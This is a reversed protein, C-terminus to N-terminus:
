FRAGVALGHSRLDVAFRCSAPEILIGKPCHILNILAGGVSAAPDLATSLPEGEDFAIRAALAAGPVPEGDGGATLAGLADSRPRNVLIGAVLRGATEARPAPRAAVIGSAGLMRGTGFPGNATATCAAVNGSLDIAAFGAVGPSDPSDPSDPNASGGTPVAPNDDEMAAIVARGAAGPAFSLEHNGIELHEADGWAPRYDRFAAVLAPRAQEPAVESALIRALDGAYFDGPGRLRIRALTSSLAIQRLMEGERVLEGAPAFIDALADNSRIRDAAAAMRRALARSVPKGFRAFEEAPFLLAEWALRGYRAHLAFMGRVSGPVAVPPAGPIDVPEPLFELSEVTGSSADHVICVGGGGLTAVAPYTVGMAFYMAVVADFANGGSSLINRGVLAARPEDSVVGGFDGQM